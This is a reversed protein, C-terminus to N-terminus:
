LVPGTVVSFHNGLFVGSSTFLEIEQVRAARRMNTESERYRSAMM